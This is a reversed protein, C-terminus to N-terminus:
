KYTFRDAPTITSNGTPGHVAVNHTGAAQAPTVATIRTDSVVSFTRAAVSGFDVDTANTFGSGTITVVTGGTTPGLAPAVGTVAPQTVYTFLDAPVTASGGAPGHIYINQPGAPQAPAVATIQSNSVVAFSRAAVSGFEIQTAGTFGSGVITVAMGWCATGIVTIDWDSGARATRQECSESSRSRNGVRGAPFETTNNRGGGDPGIRPAAGSRCLGIRRGGVCRSHCDRRTQEHRVPYPSWFHAEAFLQQCRFRECNSRDHLTKPRTLLIHRKMERVRKHSRM